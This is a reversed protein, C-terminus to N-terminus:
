VGQVDAVPELMYSTRSLHKWGSKVRDAHGTMWLLLYRRYLGYIDAVMYREDETLRMPGKGGKDKVLKVVMDLQRELEAKAALLKSSADEPVKAVEGQINTCEKIIAKVAGPKLTKGGDDVEVEEVEQNIPAPGMDEPQRLNKDAITSSLLGPHPGEAEESTEEASTTIEAQGFVNEIRSARRESVPPESFVVKLSQSAIRSSAQYVSNRLVRGEDLVAMPIVLALDVGKQFTRVGLSAQIVRFGLSGEVRRLADM